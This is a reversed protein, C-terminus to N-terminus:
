GRYTPHLIYNTISFFINKDFYDLIFFVKIISYYSYKGYNDPRIKM